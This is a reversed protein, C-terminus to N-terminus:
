PFVRALFPKSPSPTVDARRLAAMRTSESALKLLMYEGRM